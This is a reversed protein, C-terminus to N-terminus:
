LARMESTKKLLDNITSGSVNKSALNDLYSKVDKKSIRRSEKHCYNLFKRLCFIYSKVTRESYKRRFMEKKVLEIIDLM